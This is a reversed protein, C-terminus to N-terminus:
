PQITLALGDSAATSADSPDLWVSQAYIVSGVAQPPIGLIQEAYGASQTGLPFIALPGELAVYLPLDLILSGAPAPSQNVLLAGLGDPPAFLTTLAFSPTAPSPVGSVDLHVPGLKSPKSTGLRTVGAPDPTGCAEIARYVQRALELHALVEPLAAGVPFVDLAILQELADIYDLYYQGEAAGCIPQNAVRVWVPATHAGGDAFLEPHFASAALWGSQAVELPLTLEFLGGSPLDYPATAVTMGNQLIRVSGASQGPLDVGPAVHLRACVTVVGPAVLELEGGIGVGDVELDLFLFREDAISTRGARVAEKWGEFDLPDSAVRAYALVGTKLCSNDRGAAVSVRLGANWLKYALGQWGFDPNVVARPSELFDVRGLVADVPAFFGFPESSPAFFPVDEVDYSLSAHVHAYGILSGPQARFFDLAPGPWTADQPFAADSVGSVQLHGLVDAPFRSVEVGFWLIHDPDGKSVDSEQGTVFPAYDALFEAPDDIGIGWVQAFRVAIESDVQEQFLAEPELDPPPPAGDVSGCLQIHAHTDGRYWLPPPAVSGGGTQLMCPLALLAELVPPFM